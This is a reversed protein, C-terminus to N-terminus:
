DEEVSVNNGTMLSSTITRQIIAHWVHSLRWIILIVYLDSISWTVSLFAPQGQMIYVIVSLWFSTCYECHVLQRLLNNCRDQIPKWFKTHVISGPSFLLDTLAEVVLSLAIISIFVQM